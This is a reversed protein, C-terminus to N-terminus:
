PSVPAFGRKRTADGHFEKLLISTRRNGNEVVVHKDGISVITVKRKMRPDLDVWVEGVRIKITKSM